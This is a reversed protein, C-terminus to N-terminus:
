QLKIKVFRHKGIRIAVPKTITIKEDVVKGEGIIEIGGGKVLRTFESKSSVVKNDVLIAALSTGTKVTLEEAEEPLTGNGSFVQEFNEKAKQAVKEDNLLKVVEFALQLKAEKPHGALLTEYDEKPLRTLIEFGLPMLDDPWSMIKGFIEEAPENLNAMNGETKGMKKGAADTLLKTTLVFKEKNKLKKLLDRGVLMNFLQDNGGIELDIDLAVSDYGQLLPYCLENFYVAENQKKREKFMEREAIERETIQTALHLFEAVKMKNWWEGNHRFITTKPDLIKLIQDKYDKLNTEVEGTTLVKRVALKDTPDGITATFDGFLIVVEHGAVQFDRLKLLTALHGLHLTSATPDIGHYLKLPGQKLRAVVTEQNPLIQEVGRTLLEDM